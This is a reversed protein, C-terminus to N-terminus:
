PELDDSSRYITGDCAVVFEKGEIRIRGGVCNAQKNQKNSDRETETVKASDIEDIPMPKDDAQDRLLLSLKGLQKAATIALADQPAVDLTVTKSRLDRTGGTNSSQSQDTVGGLSIVRAKQVIVKSRVDRGVYHTLVVDVWTGPIVHYEIATVADIDITVARNGKTVPLVSLAPKDTLQGREIPSGAPLDVRAYKDQVEALDRIAGEPVQNRPWYMTRYKAADLRTGAPVPREPTLLTVTALDSEAQQNAASSDQQQSASSVKFKFVVALVLLLSMALIAAAMFLKRDREPNRGGGARGLGVNHRGFQSNMKNIVWLVEQKGKLRSSSTPGILV